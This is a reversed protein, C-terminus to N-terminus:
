GRGSNQNEENTGLLVPLTVTLRVGVDGSAIDLKGGLQEARQRMGPIGVGFRVFGRDRGTLDAPLGRGRDELVLRVEGPCRDLQILAMGSGSHKHVNALGEQVIRFLTAEVDQGLRGFDSPIKLDIQIGTRERFDEVYSQLASGLGVEDLLPPHLLYSVTRIERSCQGTLDLAEEILTMQRPSLGTARLRNLDLRIAALLQATSDHLERAIRRREYDQSRLLDLSLQRLQRNAAQIAEGARKRETIDLM